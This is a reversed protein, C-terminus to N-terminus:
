CWVLKRAHKNWNTIWGVEMRARGEPFPNPAISHLKNLATKAARPSLRNEAAYMLYDPDCTCDAM